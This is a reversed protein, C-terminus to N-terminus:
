LPRKVVRVPTAHRASDWAMALAMVTDDHMGAPAEYRTMGSPLRKAEYAQMEAKQVTDALLKIEEKELALALAEIAESKSANTTTFGRVPLKARHLEEIVPEGMSNAEAVIELPRWKAYLAELRGRQVTYDIRNFRDVYVQRKSTADVVSIVTWDELKGWDVGFVYTHGAEPEKQAPLVCAEALKRFVLGGEIFLADWEQQFTREPVRERAMNYARRIQPLPNANSPATWCAMGAAGAQAKLYEDYFWNKGKPTSILIADGDYDSLTPMIADVWATEPLRAAEDLVVAHFAWGRIADINDGSFLALMGGGRTEITRESNNISVQKTRIEDSLAGRLWRWLPRSNRYTPTIWAVLGHQALTSAVVAGGFVTKGWRRGMPLVKIKAPDNAITWQDRRLRPLQM